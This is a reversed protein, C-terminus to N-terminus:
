RLGCRACSSGSTSPISSRGSATLGAWGLIRGFNWHYFSWEVGGYLGPTLFSYVVFISVPALFFVSLYVTVPALLGLLRRRQRAARTSM